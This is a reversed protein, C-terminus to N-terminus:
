DLITLSGLGERIVVINDNESCDLVTSAYLNGLGGDIVINVKKEYYIISKLIVWQFNMM